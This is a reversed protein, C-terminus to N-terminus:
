KRKHILGLMGLGLLSLTAPEPVLILSGDREGSTKIEGGDYFAGGAYEDGLGPSGSTSRFWEWRNGFTGSTDFWVAYSTNAALTLVSDLEIGLTSDTGGVYPADFTDTLLIDGPLAPVSITGAYSDAVEFVHMTLTSATSEDIDKGTDIEYTLFIKTVDISAAGVTVTQGLSVADDQGFTFSGEPGTAILADPLYNDYIADDATTITAAQVLGCLMLVVLLLSLNRM